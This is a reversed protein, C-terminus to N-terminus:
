PKKLTPIQLEFLNTGTFFFVVLNLIFYVLFVIVLGVIASVIHNRAEELATKDGGSTIWKIGGWILFALAILIAGVFAFTVLIGLTSGLNGANLDCLPKFQGPPCGVVPEAFALAPTAFLYVLLSNYLAIIKKVLNIM